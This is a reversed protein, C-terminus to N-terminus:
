RPMGYDPYAIDPASSAAIESAVVISVSRSSCGPVVRRRKKVAGRRCFRLQIASKRGIQPTDVSFIPASNSSCLHLVASQYMQAIFAALLRRSASSTCCVPTSWLDLRCANLREACPSHNDAAIIYRPGYQQRPVTRNLAYVSANTNLIWAFRGSQAPLKSTRNM